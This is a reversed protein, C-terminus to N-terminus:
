PHYLFQTKYVFGCHSIFTCSSFVFVWFFPFINFLRQVKGFVSLRKFLQIFIQIHKTKNEEAKNYFVIHKTFYDEQVYFPPPPLFQTQNNLKQFAVM